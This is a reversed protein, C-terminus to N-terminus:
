GQFHSPGYRAEVYGAIIRAQKEDEQAEAEALEAEAAVIREITAAAMDALVARKEPAASGLARVSTEVAEAVDRALAQYAPDDHNWRASTLRALAAEARPGPLTRARDLAHHLLRESRKAAARPDRARRRRQRARLLPDVLAAATTAAVALAAYGGLLAPSLRLALHLVSEADDPADRVVAVLMALLYFPLVFHLFAGGM